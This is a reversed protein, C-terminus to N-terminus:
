AFKRAADTGKSDAKFSFVVRGTARVQQLQAVLERQSAQAASIGALDGATTVPSAALALNGRQMQLIMAHVAEDMRRQQMADRIVRHKESAPEGYITRVQDTRPQALAASSQLALGFALATALFPKM